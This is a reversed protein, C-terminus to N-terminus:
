WCCTGGLNCGAFSRRAGPGAGIGVKRYVSLAHRNQLVDLRDGFAHADGEHLHELGGLDLVIGVTGTRQFASTKLFTVSAHVDQLAVFVTQFFAYGTEQAGGGTRGVADIYFGGFVDFRISYAAGFAVGLFVDDVVVPTNKTPIAHLSARGVRDRMPM